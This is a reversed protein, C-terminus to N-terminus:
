KENIQEEVAEHEVPLVKEKGFCFVSIRDFFKEFSKYFNTKWVVLWLIEAIAIGAIMDILYHQKTYQTSLCVMIAFVCSFVKYLMPIKKSKRIGVFCFWSVLCHISPFLCSAEDTAYLWRMLENCFGSGVIEPRINTTPLVFFCIGCVVRSLIDATVFRFCVERGERGILIYNAAWFVYCVFYIIVFEPVFPVARDIDMTLDYHKWDSTILQAGFYILCNFVFCSILPILAYLPCIKDIYQNFFKRM